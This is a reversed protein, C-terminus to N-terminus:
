NLSRGLDGGTMSYGAFAEGIAQADGIAMWPSLTAGSQTSDSAEAWGAPLCLVVLGIKVWTKSLLARM